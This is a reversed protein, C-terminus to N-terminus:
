RDIRSASRPNLNSGLGFTTKMMRLISSKDNQIRLRRITIVTKNSQVASLMNETPAQPATLATHWDSTM